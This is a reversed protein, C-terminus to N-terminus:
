IILRVADIEKDCIRIWFKLVNRGEMNFRSQMLILNRGMVSPFWGIGINILTRAVVNDSIAM